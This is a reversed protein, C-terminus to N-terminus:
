FDRLRVRLHPNNDSIELLKLLNEQGSRLCLLREGYIDRRIAEEPMDHEQKQNGILEMRWRSVTNIYEVVQCCSRYNFVLQHMFPVTGTKKRFLTKLREMRFLTPNIIQNPDGSFFVNRGDASLMYIMYIQPETLDQVEDVIIFDPKRIANKRLKEIVIYALDNDDFYNNSKLWENYTQAIKHLGDRKNGRDYKTLEGSLEKYTDYPMIQHCVTEREWDPGMYGKIVSRIEAWVDIPDLNKYYVGMNESNFWEVFQPYDIFSSFHIGAHSLCFDCLRYFSNPEAGFATKYHKAATDKLNKTYTLYIVNKSNELCKKMIHLGVLTKGSGANGTLVLPFDMKLCKQQETNLLVNSGPIQAEIISAVDSFSVYWTIERNIDYHFDKYKEELMEDAATDAPYFDYNGVGPKNSIQQARRGQYDHCKEYAFIIISDRDLGEHVYEGFSYIVRHSYNAYFKWLGERNKFKSANLSKLYNTLEEPNNKLILALRDLKEYVAQQLDKTLKLVDKKFRDSILLQM